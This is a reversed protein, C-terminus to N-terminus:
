CKVTEIDDNDEKPQTKEFDTYKSMLGSIRILEDKLGDAFSYEGINTKYKGYDYKTNFVADYVEKLKQEVSVVITVDNDKEFDENQSLLNSFWRSEFRDLVEVMPSFDRGSVFEEYKEIDKLKLGLMVPLFYFICFQLGKEEPFIFDETGKHTPKYAAIKTIRIYKAIERLSFDFKEIVIRCVMDYFYRSSASFGINSYFLKKDVPSLSLRLDFFRDLYRSADFKEGYYKKVTHQLELSNIAFVFTIRDNTFYHKIRKLLRVAYDPKCRDLEDVFIVLRDGREPLLEDLFEKILNEIEKTEKITKLIDESKFGERLTTYSKGTFFELVASAKTLVDTGQEFSFCEDVNGLISLVLSLIPDEDNDNSWADYYVALQPIYEIPSNIHEEDCISSIIRKDDENLSQVHNNFADLILKTQKVFFTKGAGWKADLAISCSENISNLIDAFSIIDSNRGITNKIFTSVLNEYTPQLELSKM